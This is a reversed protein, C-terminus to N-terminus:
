MTNSPSASDPSTAGGEDSAAPASSASKRASSRPQVDGLPVTDAGGVPFSMACSKTWVDYIPHQVVNLGPREKFLWGSFVRRWRRDVGRVDLQVFAGTLPNDEWPASHECARLRIVADGLRFAQGPKMTFERSVGNRKNLLGIVAVRQAMPTGRTPAADANADVTEITEAGGVFEPIDQGAVSEAVPARSRQMAQWGFWGAAALAVVLVAAALWRKMM